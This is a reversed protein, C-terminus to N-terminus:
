SLGLASAPPRPDQKAGRWCALVSRTRPHGYSAIGDGHRDIRAAVTEYATLWQWTLRQTWQTFLVHAGSEPQSDWRPGLSEKLLYATHLRKHAKRLKALSRRGDLSRYERHSRLTDRPGKIFARDKADLAGDHKRGARCLLPGQRGRHPRQRRGLNAAQSRPRQRRHPRRAGEPHRDRGGRDSTARAVQQQRYIRDLDTVTSTTAASRRPWRRTPGRAVACAWM